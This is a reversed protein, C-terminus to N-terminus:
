QVTIVRDETFDASSLKLLYNGPSLQSLDIRTEEGASMLKTTNMVKRGQMDFLLMEITASLDASSIVLFDAAPNPYVSLGNESIEDIGVPWIRVKVTDRSVCSNTDIVV